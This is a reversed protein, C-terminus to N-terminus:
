SLPDVREVRSSVGVNRSDKTAPHVSLRTFPAACGHARVMEPTEGAFTRWHCHRYRMPEALQHASVRFDGADGM